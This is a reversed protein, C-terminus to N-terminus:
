RTVMRPSAIAIDWGDPADAYTRGEARARYRRDLERGAAEALQELNQIDLSHLDKDELHKSLTPASQIVKILSSRKPGRITWADPPPSPLALRSLLSRKKTPAAVNAATMPPKAKPNCKECQCAKTAPKINTRLVAKRTM